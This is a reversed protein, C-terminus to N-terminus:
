AAEGDGKLPRLPLGDLWNQIEDSRWMSKGGVIRSRPFKGVRMWSWLTVYSVNAIALVEHKDLLRVPPGRAGHAYQRDHQDRGVDAALRAAHRHKRNKEALAKPIGPKSGPVAISARETNKKKTV